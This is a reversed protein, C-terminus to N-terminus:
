VERDLMKLRQNIIIGVVFQGRFRFAFYLSQLRLLLLESNTKQRSMPLHSKKVYHHAGELYLNPCRSSKYFLIDCEPKGM